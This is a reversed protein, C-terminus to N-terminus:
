PTCNEVYLKGSADTATNEADTIRTKPGALKTVHPAAGTAGTVVVINPGQAVYATGADDFALQRNAPEEFLRVKAELAFPARASPRSVVLSGDSMLFLRSKGDLGM